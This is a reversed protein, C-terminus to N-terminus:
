PTHSGEFELLWKKIQLGGGFGTLSGDAGIVRHCPVIIPIPNRSNALGVARVANPNGITKAVDGYSRTQGFPIRALVDWVSHQFATGAAALALGTFSRESGEFYRELAQSAAALHARAKISGERGALEANRSPFSVTSLGADTAALRLRGIPTALTVTALSEDNLLKDNPVSM